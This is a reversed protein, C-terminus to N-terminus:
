SIICQCTATNEKSKKGKDYKKNNKSKINEDHNHQLSSTSDYNLLKHEDVSRIPSETEPVLSIVLQPINQQPNADQPNGDIPKDNLPKEDLPKDNLPKDDLPKNDIPEDDIPKDDDKSKDDLPKDDNKPKDNLSKNDLSKVDLSNKISLSQHSIHKDVQDQTIISTRISSNEVQCINSKIEEISSAICESPYIDNNNNININNVLSDNDETEKIHDDSKNDNEETIDNTEESVESYESESDLNLGDSTIVEAIISMSSRNQQKDFISCKSFTSKPRDSLSDDMSKKWSLQAKKEESILDILSSTKKARAVIANREEKEKKIKNYLTPVPREDYPLNSLSSFSSYSTRYNIEKEKIPSKEVNDFPIKDRKQFAFPINGQNSKISKVEIDNDNILIDFAKSNKVQSTM